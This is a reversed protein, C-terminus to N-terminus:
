GKQLNVLCDGTIGRVWDDFAKIEPDEGVMEIFCDNCTDVDTSIASVDVNAKPLDHKGISEISTKVGDIADEFNDQCQNLCTKVAKSTKPNALRNKLVTKFENIKREVAQLKKSAFKCGEVESPVTRKQVGIEPLALEFLESLSVPVQEDSTISNPTPAPTPTPTLNPTPSPTSQCRLIFFFIAFIYIFILKQSTFAM